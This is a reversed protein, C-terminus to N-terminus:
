RVADRSADVSASRELTQAIWRNLSLGSQRAASVLARHLAPPVRVIFQGSYPKEPAEGREACFALYDEISGQLAQKLEAVSQGQFTVVDRLNVVEGHFLEAEEDYGIVAEYGRYSMTNM